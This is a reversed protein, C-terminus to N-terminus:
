CEGSKQGRTQSTLLRQDNSTQQEEDRGQAGHVRLEQEEVVATRRVRQEDHEVEVTDDATNTYSQSRGDTRHIDALHCRRVDAAHQYRTVLKGDDETLQHDVEHVEEDQAVM